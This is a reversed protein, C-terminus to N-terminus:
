AVTLCPVLRTGLAHAGSRAHPQARSRQRATRTVASAAGLQVRQAGRCTETIMRSRAALPLGGGRQLDHAVPPAAAPSVEPNHRNDIPTVPSRIPGDVLGQAERFGSPSRRAVLVFTWARAKQAARPARVQLRQDRRFASPAPPDPPTLEAGQPHTPSGLPPRGAALFARPLKDRPLVALDWGLAARVARWPRQGPLHTRARGRVSARPLRPSPRRNFAGPGALYARLSMPQSSRGKPITHGTRRAFGRPLGHRPYLTVVTALPSRRRGALGPRDAPCPRASSSTRRHRIPRAALSHDWAPADCHFLRGGSATRGRPHVTSPRLCALAADIARSSTAAAM